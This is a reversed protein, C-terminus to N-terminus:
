PARGRVGHRAHAGQRRHDAEPGPHLTVDRVREGDMWVERGDRLGERYAEGTRIM